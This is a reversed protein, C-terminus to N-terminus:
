GFDYNGIITLLKKGCLYVELEEKIRDTDSFCNVVAVYKHEEMLLATRISKWSKGYVDGYFEDFHKLARDMHTKKKKIV